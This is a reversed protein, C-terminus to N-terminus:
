MRIDLLPTLFLEQWAMVLSRPPSGGSTEWEHCVRVLELAQDRRRGAMEVTVGPLPHQRLRECAIRLVALWRRVQRAEVVIGMESLSDLAARLSVECWKAVKLALPLSWKRRPVVQAPLISFTKGLGGKPGLGRCVFRPVLIERAVGDADV